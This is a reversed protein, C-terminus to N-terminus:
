QKVPTQELTKWEAIWNNIFAIKEAGIKALPFQEKTMHLRKTTCSEEYNPNTAIFVCIGGVVFRYLRHANIKIYSPALIMDEHKSGSFLPYVAFIPYDWSSISKKLLLMKQVRKEHPGLSVQSFMDNKALSMRWLISLFFLKTKEYDFNKFIDINDHKTFSINRKMFLAEKAYKELIGIKQECNGCLMKERIESQQIYEKKRRPDSSLEFFRNHMEESRVM